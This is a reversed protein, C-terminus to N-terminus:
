SRAGAARLFEVIRSYGRRTAWALPTGWPEDGPQNVPAGRSVLFEVM